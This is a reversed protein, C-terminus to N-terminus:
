AARHIRTGLPSPNDWWNGGGGAGNSGTGAFLNGSGGSGQGVSGGALAAPPGAAAAANWGRENGFQGYGTFMGLLSSLAGGGSAGGLSAINDRAYADQAQPGTFLRGAEGQGFMNSARDTWNQPRDPLNEGSQQWPQLPGDMSSNSGYPDPSGFLGRIAQVPKPAEVWDRARNWQGTTQDYLNARAPIGYLGGAINLLNDLREPSTLWNRLREGRTATTQTM